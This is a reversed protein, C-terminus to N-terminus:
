DATLKFRQQTQKMKESLENLDKMTAVIGKM